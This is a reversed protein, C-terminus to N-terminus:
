NGYLLEVRRNMGWASDDHGLAAPREEGYSVTQITGEGVGLVQLVRSVSKARREGLALNYERTGREDAHGELTLRIGPNIILNSAHAELIAQSEATIDASDYEFYIVRLALLDEGAQGEAGDESAADATEDDELVEGITGEKSEVGLATAGAEAATDAVEAANVEEETTSCGALALGFLAVLILKTKLSM